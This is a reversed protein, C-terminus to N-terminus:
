FSLGYYVLPQIAKVFLCSHLVSTYDYLVMIDNSVKGIRTGFSAINIYLVLGM